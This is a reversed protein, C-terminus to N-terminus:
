GAPTRAAGVVHTVPVDYAREVRRPLDMRMWKSPGSPLTSLIIEDFPPERHLVDGIAEIPRFDGVEGTVEVGLESFQEIAHQLREHALRVDSDEDHAHWSAGSSAPVLVHIEADGAAARDRVTALLQEGGLTLNAVVLYRAM